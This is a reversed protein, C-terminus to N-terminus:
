NFCREQARRRMLLRSAVLQVVQELMARWKAEKERMGGEEVDTASKRALGSRNM